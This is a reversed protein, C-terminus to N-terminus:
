YDEKLIDQFRKKGHDSLRYQPIIFDWELVDSERYIINQLLRDHAHYLGNHM